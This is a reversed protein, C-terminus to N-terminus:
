SQGPRMNGQVSHVLNHEDKDRKALGDLETLSVQYDRDWGNDVWWQLKESVHDNTM